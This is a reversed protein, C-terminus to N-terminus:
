FLALDAPDFNRLQPLATNLEDSSLGWWRGLPEAFQEVALTPILRGNGADLENGLVAPPVDGFINRGRVAGGIVLHNGGWGHDTGDGNVTLTRGFDSATFATVDRSLGLEIMATDFASLAGDIQSLLAPLEDAQNSHTDFGGTGVFFIQRTAALSGRISITEAVARLQSGLATEPFPVSFPFVSARAADFAANADIGDRFMTAVDRALVNSGAFGAARFRDRAADLFEVFAPGEGGSGGRELAAIGASGGVSVQYPSVTNGTLFPGVGAVSLTAFEPRGANAGAALAADAFLGGWGLQAGEPASAQWTSQQDNHSFLRSPLRASGTAFGQATVPEILPGVNAVIAARGQEFLSAMMPMEPPLAFTRSGFLAGNDPVLPLLNERSRAGAYRDLLTQRIAAFGNYSAPDYPILLEYGDLGGFLFICVLAKYGTAEAAHASLVGPLGTASLGAVSSAAALRLFHRRDITM